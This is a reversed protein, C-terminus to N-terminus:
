CAQKCVLNHLQDMHQIKCVGKISYHRDNPDYLVPFMGASKAAMIGVRSDEVVACESPKFGMKKAAHLYIDPDPKWANIEYASFLNENFHNSLGTVKLAKKIKDLPGSSAVCKPLDLELLMEAVGACPQLSKDFLGDVLSRYSSIFDEKLKVQHKLALIHLITSLKGGRFEEMMKNASSEVGYEKLKIKLGLNCLYESDVLTGDCDFIVCNIM